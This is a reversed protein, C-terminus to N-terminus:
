ALGNPSVNHVVRTDPSDGTQKDIVYEAHANITKGILGSVSLNSELSECNCLLIGQEM